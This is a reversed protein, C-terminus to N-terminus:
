NQNEIHNNKKEELNNPKFLGHLQVGSFTMNHAFFSWAMCKHNSFNVWLVKSVIWANSLIRQALRSFCQLKGSFWIRGYEPWSWGALVFVPLPIDPCISARYDDNRYEVFVYGSRYDMDSSTKHAKRNAWILKMACTNHIQNKKHNNNNSETHYLFISGLVASQSKLSEETQIALTFSVCIFNSNTTSLYQGNKTGKLPSWEPPERMRRRKKWGCSIVICIIEFHEYKENARGVHIGYLYEIEFSNVLSWDSILM